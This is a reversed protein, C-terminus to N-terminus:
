TQPATQQHTPNQPTRSLVITQLLAFRLRIWRAM